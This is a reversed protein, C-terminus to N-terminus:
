SIGISVSYKFAGNICYEYKCINQINDFKSTTYVNIYLHKVKVM